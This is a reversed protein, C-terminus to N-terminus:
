AFKGRRLPEVITRFIDDQKAAFENWQKADYQEEVSNNIKLSQLGSSVSMMIRSTLVSAAKALVAEKIEASITAAFGWKGVIVISNPNGYTPRAFQIYTTPEGHRACLWFDTNVTKASGNITLSTLSYLGARLPLIRSENPSFYRTVDAADVFFPDYRTTKELIDVASDIAGQFDILAQENSLTPYGLLKASQLYEKLNAVTPYGM